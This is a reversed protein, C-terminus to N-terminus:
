RRLKLDTVLQKSVDSTIIVKKSQEIISNIKSQLAEVQKPIPEGYIDNRNLGNRANRVVPEFAGLLRNFDTPEKGVM